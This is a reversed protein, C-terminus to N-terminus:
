SNCAREIVRKVVVGAVDRRYEATSRVDDIPTVESSASKAVAELVQDNIEVGALLKETEKLRIVTPAVSAMAIRASQCTNGSMDLRVSATLKSLDHVVRTMKYHASVTGNTAPPLKVEVAIEDPTRATFRYGLWFNDIDVERRGGTGEFVVTGGYALISCGCDACPSANLLNGVVTGLNRTQITGCVDISEWLGPYNEKVAPHQAVQSLTAMAGIRLGEKEDYEVYDLGPIEALSLIYDFETDGQVCKFQGKMQVLLDTGGAMIATKGKHESLLKLAEEKSQPVLIEFEPLVRSSM